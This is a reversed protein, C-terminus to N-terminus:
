VEQFELLLWIGTESEFAHSMYHFKGHMVDWDHGRDEVFANKWHVPYYPLSPPTSPDTYLPLSWVTDPIDGIYSFPEVRLAFAGM